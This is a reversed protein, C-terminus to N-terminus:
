LNGCSLVCKWNTSMSTCATIASLFLCALGEGLSILLAVQQRFSYCQSVIIFCVKVGKSRGIRVRRPKSWKNSRTYSFAMPSVRPPWHSNRRLYRSYLANGRSNRAPLYNRWQGRYGTRDVTFACTTLFWLLGVLRLVSSGGLM